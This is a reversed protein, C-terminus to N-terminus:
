QIKHSLYLYGVFFYEVPKLSAHGPRLLSKCHIISPPQNTQLLSIASKNKKSYSSIGCELAHHRGQMWLSVFSKRLCNIFHFFLLSNQITNQVHGLDHPQSLLIEDSFHRLIAQERWSKIFILSKADWASYFFDLTIDSCIFANECWGSWIKKKYLGSM